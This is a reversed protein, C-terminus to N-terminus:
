LIFPSLPISIMKMTMTISMSRRKIEWVTPQKSIMPATQILKHKLESNPNVFQWTLRFEYYTKYKNTTYNADDKDKLKKKTTIDM